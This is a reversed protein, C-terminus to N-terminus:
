RLVGVQEAAAWGQRRGLRVRVFGEYEDLVTAREGGRAPTNLVPSRGDPSQHLPVREDLIVAPSGDALWGRKTVLGAGSLLVSLSVFIAAVALAVRRTEQQSARRIALLLFLLFVSVWLAIALTPETVGHVLSRAFHTDRELEAEGEVEARSRALAEEAAALAASAAPDSPRLLLAREFHYIARAHQRMRAHCVGINQEVDPDRVGVDVLAGYVELAAAYNEAFALENARRFLADLTEAGQGTEPTTEPTADPSTARPTEAPTQARVVTASFALVGFAGLWALVLVTRKGVSM